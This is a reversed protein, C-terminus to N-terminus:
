AHNRTKKAKVVEYLLVDKDVPVLDLGHEGYVKESQAVGLFYRTTQAGPFLIYVPRGKKMARMAKVVGPPEPDELYSILHIDTRRKQVLLMYNLPSRHHLISADPKTKNAVAQIIERGRYDNSRDVDRFTNPVNWVALVLALVSIAAIVARRGRLQFRNLSGEAANQLAGLGIALFIALIMYTPIFYFLIDEIDYELAFILWGLYLGGLLVLSARDEFLLSWIGLVSVVILILPFQDMLHGLYLSMREPLQGPGFVFMRGKWAGGSVLLYFGKLTDPPYERIIPQGWVFGKPLYDMSARIPIFAYPLVGLIFLGAGKLFLRWERFKGRDVMFIFILGFPILLGSTIHDTLSLGMMFASILLYRDKRSTRWVVLSLITLGVFLTNLTYVEAIISQSWFTRSVAFAIAAVLAALTRGSLKLSIAFVLSVSAAAYVASALNTRYAVDGFPLFTFLKGILVLTPYGTYDPVGLVAIKAQLVASDRLFPLEYYMVTPALTMLYLVLAVIGAGVGVLAMLTRPRNARKALATLM